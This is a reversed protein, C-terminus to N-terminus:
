TLNELAVSIKNLAQTWSCTILSQLGPRAVDVTMSNQFLIEKSPTTGECDCGSGALWPCELSKREKEPGQERRRGRFHPPLTLM